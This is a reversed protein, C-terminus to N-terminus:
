GRPDPRKEPDTDAPRHRYQSLAQHLVATSAVIIGADDLWGVFPVMDPIFDFPMVVYAVAALLLAKEWLPARPSRLLRWAAPIRWLVPWGVRKKAEPEDDGM